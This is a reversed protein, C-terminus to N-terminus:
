DTDIEKYKIKKFHQGDQATEYHHIFNSNYLLNLIQENEDTIEIRQNGGYINNVIKEAGLVQLM